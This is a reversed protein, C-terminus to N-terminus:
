LSGGVCLSDASAKPADGSMKMTITCCYTPTLEIKISGYHKREVLQSLLKMGFGTGRTHECSAELSDRWILLLEDEGDPGQRLSWSIDVIGADCAFAGYKASNTSLEHWIMGLDFCLGSPLVLDRGSIRVKGSFAEFSEKALTKISTKGWGDQSIMMNMRAMAALRQSYTSKAREIDPTFRLTQLFVSHALQLLNGSRHAIEKLLLARRESAEELRWRGAIVNAVAILFNVDAREFKLREPSHVGLVGFPRKASGPIPVSMGSRVNHERLLAPGNFRNETELDEVVVPTASFLTYGAQSELEIGVSATGVLGEDWGIGARLVLNDARDSFQLVKALSCGVAEALIEIIEQLAANFHSESLAISGIKALASQQLLRRAMAKAANHHDTMDRSVVVFGGAEERADPLATVIEDWVTTRGSSSHFTGSFRGSGSKLAQKAAEIAADREAGKWFDFYSLGTAKTPDDIELSACGCPNISQLRGELDLVKICDPSIALLHQAFSKVKSGHANRPGYRPLTSWHTSQM